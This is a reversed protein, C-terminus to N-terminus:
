PAGHSAATSRQPATTASANAGHQMVVFDPHWGPPPGGRGVPIDGLAMHHAKWVMAMHIRDYGSPHDYFFWEELPSPEMKRYESLLLASEAFGDPERAANLGFMDAQHEHFRTINNQIPTAVLMLFAIVSFLLPMGAPDWVNRIGWREGASLKNFLWNALAFVVVILLTFMVLLSVNHNLVYHGIEHGLVARVGGPTERHILNDAMSIRTTGAFGSVNATVRNSQRSVDFVYVNDAPVGNAQAMEVISTKLPSDAMEHYSNFIPAIYVPALMSAVASLVVAVITGWIWWSKKALWIVFYLIAIGISGIALNLGFGQLYETFWHSFDQRSLGYDHERVFGVWYDWPFTVVGVLTYFLFFGIVVLFYLKVTKELWSRVGRAWGLQLVLFAIIFGIIPGVFQIWYGGEFYSNSRRVAAPDMTNLWERTAVDPDFPLATATHTAAAAAPAHEAATQAFAPGALATLAALACWGSLRM